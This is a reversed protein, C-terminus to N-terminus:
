VDTRGVERLLKNALKPGVGNVVQLQEPKASLVNWITTFRGILAEARAPGLGDVLGILGKVQPNPHWTVPKLYREFTHHEQKQDAKYFTALATCTAIYDATFFVEIHKSVQYLWAYILNLGKDYSGKSALIREKSTARYVMTGQATPVAIGEVMLMLRVDPHARMQRGLQEEVSDLDSLLESWQKREVQHWGDVGSWLYDAFGRDNLPEREVQVLPHLLSMGEPPEHSDITLYERPSLNM